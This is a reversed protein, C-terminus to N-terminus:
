AAERQAEVAVVPDSATVIARTEILKRRARHMRRTYVALVGAALLLLWASGYLTLHWVLTEM